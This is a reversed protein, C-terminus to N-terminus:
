QRPRPSSVALGPAHGRAGKLSKLDEYARRRLVEEVDRRFPWIPVQFPFQVLLKGLELALGLLRYVGEDTRKM